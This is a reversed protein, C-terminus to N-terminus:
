TLTCERAACSNVNKQYDCEFCQFPVSSDPLMYTGDARQVWCGLHLVKTCTSCTIYSHSTLCVQGRIHQAIRKQCRTFQKWSTNYFGGCCDHHPGCQFVFSSKPVPGSDHVSGSDTPSDDVLYEAVAAMGLQPPSSSSSGSNSGLAQFAAAFPNSSPQKDAHKETQGPRTRKMNLWCILLSPLSSNEKAECQYRPQTHVCSMTYVQV